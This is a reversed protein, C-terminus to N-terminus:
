RRSGDTNRNIGSCYFNATWEPCGRGNATEWSRNRLNRKVNNIYTLAGPVRWEGSYWRGLCGYLDGSEYTTGSAASDALWVEQGEFCIRQVALAYDVNFASSDWAMPFTGMHTAHGNPLVDSGRVQLLGNSDCGDKGGTRALTPGDGCDGLRGAFWSSETYVQARILDEDFGWKCAAWQIIEDTTGTYNGDIRAEFDAPGDVYYLQDAIYTEGAVSRGVRQNWPTNEPVTEPMARVRAACQTGSPLNAKPSLTRFKAGSEPESKAPGSSSESPNDVLRAADVASVSDRGDSDQGDTQAESQAENDVTRGASDAEVTPPVPPMTAETTAEKSAPDTAEEPVADRPTTEKPAPAQGEAVKAQGNSLLAIQDVTVTFGSEPGQNVLSVRSLAEGALDFEALPIRFTTSSSTAAVIKVGDVSGDAGSLEVAFSAADASTKMTILLYDCGTVDIPTTSLASIAGWRQTFSASIASSSSESSASYQVGEVSWSAPQWPTVLRGNYVAVCIEDSRIAPETPQTPAGIDVLQVSQDNPASEIGDLRPAGEFRINDVNLNINAAGGANIISIRSVKDDTLVFNALPIRVQKMEATVTAEELYAADNISLSGANDRSVSNLRVRLRPDNADSAIDFVLFQCMEINASQTQVSFASWREAFHVEVVGTSTDTTAGSWSAPYWSEELSDAFVAVSANECGSRSAGVPQVFLFAAALATLTAAIGILTQWRSVTTIDNRHHNM